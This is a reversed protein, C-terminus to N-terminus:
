CTCMTVTATKLTKYKEFYFKLLKKREEFLDKMKTQFEKDSNIEDKIKEFRQQVKTNIKQLLDRIENKVKKSINGADHIYVDHSCLDEGFSYHTFAKTNMWKQDKSTYEGTLGITYSSTELDLIKVKQIEDLKVEKPEVLKYVYLNKKYIYKLRSTYFCYNGPEYVMENRLFVSPNEELYIKYTDTNKGHALYRYGEVTKGNKFEIQFHIEVGNYEAFLFIPLFFIILQILIKNNM